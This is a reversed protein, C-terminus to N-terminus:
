VVIIEKFRANYSTIEKQFYDDFNLVDMVFQIFEKNGQLSYYKVLMLLIIGFGYLDNNKLFEVILNRRKKIDTKICLDHLRSNFLSYEGTFCNHRNYDVCYKQIFFTEGEKLTKFYERMMRFNYNADDGRLTLGRKFCDRMNEISYNNSIFTEFPKKRLLYLYNVIPSYPYYFSKGLLYDVSCSSHLHGLQSYDAIIFQVENPDFGSEYLINRDKFDNHCLGAKNLQTLTDFIIELQPKVIKAPYLRHKLLRHLDGDYKKFTLTRTYYGSFMHQSGQGYYVAFHKKLHPLVNDLIKIANTYGAYEEEFLERHKFMKHVVSEGDFHVVKGYGGSGLLTYKKPKKTYPEEYFRVSM